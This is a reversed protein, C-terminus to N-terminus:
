FAEAGNYAPGRAGDHREDDMKAQEEECLPVGRHHAEGGALPHTRPALKIKPPAPKTAQGHDQNLFPSADADADARGSESDKKRPSHADAGAAASTEMTDDEMETSPAPSGPSSPAESGAQATTSLDTTTSRTEDDDDASNVRRMAPDTPKAFYKAMGHAAESEAARDNKPSSSGESQTPHPEIGLRPADGDSPHLDPHSDSPKPINARNAM